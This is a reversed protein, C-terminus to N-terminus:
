QRHDALQSNLAGQFWARQGADAAAVRVSLIRPTKALTNALSSPVAHLSDLLRQSRSRPLYVPVMAWHLCPRSMSQQGIAMFYIGPGCPDEALKAHSAM